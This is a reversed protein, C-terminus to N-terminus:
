RPRGNVAKKEAIKRDAEIQMQYLLAKQWRQLRIPNGDADLCYKEIWDSLDSLKHDVM